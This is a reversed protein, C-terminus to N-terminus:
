QEPAVAVFTALPAGGSDTLELSSGKIKWRAVLSLMQFYEQELKMRSEDLCAMKTAGVQDFKLQDADLLYGGFMRNCGAFGTLRLNQPQLQLGVANGGPPNDVLRGGLNTLRWSTDVLPVAAAGDVRESPPATACAAITLSALAIARPLWTNM